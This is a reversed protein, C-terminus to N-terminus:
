ITVVFRDRHEIPYYGLSVWYGVQGPKLEVEHDTIDLIRTFTYGAGRIAYLCPLYDDKKSVDSLDRIKAPQVDIIVPNQLRRTMWAPQHKIIEM